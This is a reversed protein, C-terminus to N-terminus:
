STLSPIVSNLAVVREHFVPSFYSVSFFIVGLPLLYNTPMLSFSSGQEIYFLDLKKTPINPNLLQFLSLFVQRELLSTHKEKQM